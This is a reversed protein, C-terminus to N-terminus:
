EVVSPTAQVLPVLRCPEVLRLEGDLTEQRAASRQTAVEPRSVEANARLMTGVLLGTMLPVPVSPVVSVTVCGGSSSVRAHYRVIQHRQWVGPEPQTRAM